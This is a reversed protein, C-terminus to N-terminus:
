GAHEESDIIDYRTNLLRASMITSTFGNFRVIICETIGSIASDVLIPYSEMGSM